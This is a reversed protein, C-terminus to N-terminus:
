KTSNYWYNKYLIYTLISLSTFFLFHPWLNLLDFMNPLGDNSPDGPPNEPDGSPDSNPPNPPLNELKNLCSIQKGVFKNYKEFHIIYQDNLRLIEDIRTLHGEIFNRVNPHNVYSLVRNIRERLIILDETLSHLKATSINRNRLPLETQNYLNLISELFHEVLPNIRRNLFYALRTYSDLDDINTRSPFIRLQATIQPVNNANLEVIHALERHALVGYDEALVANFNLNQPTLQPNIETPTVIENTMTPTHNCFRRYIIVGAGITLFILSLYVEVTSFHNITPTEVITQPSLVVATATALIFNVKRSKLMIKRSKLM